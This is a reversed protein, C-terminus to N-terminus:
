SAITCAVLVMFVNNILGSSFGLTNGLAPDFSSILLEKFFLIIMVLNVLWFFGCTLAPKPIGVGQIILVPELLAVQDIEGYLVCGPDLDIFDAAQVILVLGLAFLLTFVVGMAAGSEVKGWKAIWSTFLATCVGVAAAGIFMVSSDRSGTILFAMALGPLVAHSIADGMMSQKRLVLFNGLLACAMSCLVGVLVVTSDSSYWEFM